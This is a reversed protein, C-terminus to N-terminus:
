DPAPIQSLTAMRYAGEGAMDGTIEQVVGAANYKTVNAGGQSPVDQETGNMNIKADAQESSVKYSGDAAVDTVKETVNATFGIQQGGLEFDGSLKYKYTDGVKVARKIAFGTSASTAAASDQGYSLTAASALALAFGFLTLSKMTEENRFHYEWAPM